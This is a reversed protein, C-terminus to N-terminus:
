ILRWINTTVQEQVNQAAAQVREQWVQRVGVSEHILGTDECVPCQTGTIGQHRCNACEGIDDWEGDENDSVSVRNEPTWRMMKHASSRRESSALAYRALPERTVTEKWGNRRDHM